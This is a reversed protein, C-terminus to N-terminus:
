PAEEGLDATQRSDHVRCLGALHCRACMGPLPDVQAAGQAYDAILRDVTRRWDSLASQWDAAHADIGPLIGASSAIGRFGSERANLLAFTVAAVHERRAVAYLPLQPQEPRDGWWKGPQASTGTKYDIVVEGASGTNPELIDIRDIMLDLTLGAATYTQAFEPRELVHFPQRQRELVLLECLKRTSIDVEIRVLRARHPSAGALLPVSLRDLTAFVQERLEREPIALLRQHSRWEGWLTELAKHLLSGRERADVGPAVQDLPRAGLRLEAQARFPCWSQLEVVRAGGSVRGPGVVPAKDDTIFEPTPRQQQLWERLSPSSRPAETYSEFGALLPSATLEADGEHQAWSCVVFDASGRLQSFEALAREHTDAVSAGPLGALQQLRLPLFPDPEPAPPLRSADCGMIWLMDFRMGAVSEPDVVMIPAPLTQPEYPTATVWQQFHALASAFTATGLLDELSGFGGLADNLKALTQQEQSDPVRDGPWGSAKWLRLFREAWESATHLEDARPLLPRMSALCSSLVSCDNAGALREVSPVDFHEVAKARLRADALARASAEDAFGAIFPSRLVRGVLTSAAKGQVLALVELATRVIPFEALTGSAAITFSPSAGSEGSRRTAPAFVDEFARRISHRREALAPVVIGISHHGADLQQRAWRTALLLEQDTDAAALTRTTGPAQLAPEDRVQGGTEVARRFVAAEALTPAQGLALQLRLAPLTRCLALEHLVKAPPLWDHQACQQEFLAAWGAFAAAEEGGENEIALLSIGYAQALDWSRAAAKAASLPNLLLSAVDSGSVIREWLVLVQQASLLRKGAQETRSAFWTREAWARVTLIDPTLWARRGTALAHEAYALRLAHASRRNPALVTFGDEISALLGPHLPDV